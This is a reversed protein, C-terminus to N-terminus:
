PFRYWHFLGDFYTARKLGGQKRARGRFVENPTRGGYSAHPRDVNYWRLFDACFRDLQSPSRVLWVVSFITEKATRFVREIRGNTQPRAYRTRQHKVGHAALFDDAVTSCLNSGNDTLIRKPLGHDRFARAVVDVIKQSSARLGLPTFAILRSGHYDVIGLVAIPIFGLVFVTTIDMGWLVRPKPIHIRQPPTKKGRELERLLDHRRILIRRVTSHSLARGFVRFLMENLKRAGVFRLEVHLRCVELEVDEPTKNWARHHCRSARKFAVAGNWRRWRILIRHLSGRVRRSKSIFFDRLLSLWLAFWLTRYIVFDFATGILSEATVLCRYRGGM